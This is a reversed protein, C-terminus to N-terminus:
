DPPAPPKLSPLPASSLAACPRPGGGGLSLVRRGRMPINRFIENPKAIKVDGPPACNHVFLIEPPSQGGQLDSPRLDFRGLRQVPALPTTSCPPPKAHNVLLKARLVLMTAFSSWSLPGSLTWLIQGSYPPRRRRTEIREEYGM